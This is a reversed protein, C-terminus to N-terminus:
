ARYSPGHARRRHMHYLKSVRHGPDGGGVRRHRRVAGIGEQGPWGGHRGDLAPGGTGTSGGRRVGAQCALDSPGQDYQCRVDLKVCVDFLKLAASGPALSKFAGVVDHAPFSGTGTPSVPAKLILAAGEDRPWAGRLVKEPTTKQIRALVSATIARQLSRGEAIRSVKYIDPVAGMTIDEL